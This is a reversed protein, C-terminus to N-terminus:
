WAGSLLPHRKKVLRFMDQMEAVNVPPDDMLRAVCERLFAASGGNPQRDTMYDQGDLYAFFANLQSEVTECNVPWDDKANEPAPTGFVTPFLDDEQRMQREADLKTRMEELDAELKQIVELCESQAQQLEQAMQNQHWRKGMFYLGFGAVIIFFVVAVTVLSRNSSRM